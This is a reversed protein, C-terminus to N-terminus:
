QFELYPPAAYIIMTPSKKEVALGGLGMFKM